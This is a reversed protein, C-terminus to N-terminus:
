AGFRRLKFQGASPNMMKKTRSEAAPLLQPISEGHLTRAAECQFRRAEHLVDM